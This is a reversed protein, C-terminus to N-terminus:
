GIFPRLGKYVRPGSITKLIVDAPRNLRTGLDEPSLPNNGDALLSRFIADVLATHEDLFGPQRACHEILTNQLGDMQRVEATEPDVWDILQGEALGAFAQQHEPCLLSELAVRWNTDNAQWWEFDIHFPTKVTPKILSFKKVESM